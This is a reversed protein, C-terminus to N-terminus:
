RFFYGELIKALDQLAYYREYSYDDEETNVYHGGSYFDYYKGQYIMFYRYGGTQVVVLDEPRNEINFPEIDVKDLLTTIKEFDEIQFSNGFAVYVKEFCVPNFIEPEKREGYSINVIKKIYEHNVSSIVYRTTRNFAKIDYKIFVFEFDDDEKFHDYPMNHMLFIVMGVFVILISIVVSIIILKKLSVSIYKKM